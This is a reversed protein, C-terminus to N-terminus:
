FGKLVITGRSHCSEILAHARKLNEANMTGFSQALTSLAALRLIGGAIGVNSSRSSQSSSKFKEFCWFRSM